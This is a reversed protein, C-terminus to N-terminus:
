DPFIRAMLLEDVFNRGIRFSKRKTGEEIFGEAKYLSIAGLNETAVTLELRKVGEAMAWAAAARILLEGVGHRRHSAEVAIALNAVHRNRSFGGRSVGIFGIPHGEYFAFFIAQKRETYMSLLQRRQTEVDRTGEEPQVLLYPSEERVRLFFAVAAAADDPKALRVVYPGVHNLPPAFKVTIM